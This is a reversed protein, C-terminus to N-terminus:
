KPLAASTAIQLLSAIDRQKAAFLYGVGRQLHLRFQRGVEQDDSPDLGDQRCRERLIALYLDADAGGFVAWTMEVNSVHESEAAKPPTPERLSVCFAWRALVNWQDIGTATKLRSLHEKAQQSLRIHKIAM